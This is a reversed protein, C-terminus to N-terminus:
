QPTRQATPRWGVGSNRWARATTQHGSARAGCRRAADLQWSTWAVARRARAPAKRM